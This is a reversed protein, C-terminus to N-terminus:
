WLWERRSAVSGAIPRPTPHAAAIARARGGQYADRGHQATQGLRRRARAGAQGGGQAAREPHARRRDREREHDGEDALEGVAQMRELDHEEAGREAERRHQGPQEALAKAHQAGLM